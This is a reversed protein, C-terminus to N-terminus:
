RKMWGKGERVMCGAGSVDERCVGGLKERGMGGVWDKGFRERDM